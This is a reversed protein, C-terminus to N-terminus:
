STATLGMRSLVELAWGHHAFQEAPPLEKLSFREIELVYV